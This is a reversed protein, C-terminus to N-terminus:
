ENKGRREWEAAASLRKEFVRLTAQMDILQKRVAIIDPILDHEIRPESRKWHWCM